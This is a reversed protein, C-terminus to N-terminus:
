DIDKGGRPLFDVSKKLWKRVTDVDISIGLKESDEQIEAATSSKAQNPDYRYGKVAMTIIIKLLSDISKQNEKTTNKEMNSNMEFRKVEELSVVVEGPPVTFASSAASDFWSDPIKMDVLTLLEGASITEQRQEFPLSVYERYEGKLKRSQLMREIYAQEVKWRQCLDQITFWDQEPLKM